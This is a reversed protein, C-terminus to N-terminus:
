MLITYTPPCRRINRATTRGSTGPKGPRAVPILHDLRVLVPLPGEGDHKLPADNYHRHENSPSRHMVSREDRRPHSVRWFRRALLDTFVWM